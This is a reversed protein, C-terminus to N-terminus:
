HVGASGESIDAFSRSANSASASAFSRHDRSLMTAEELTSFFVRVGLHSVHRESLKM